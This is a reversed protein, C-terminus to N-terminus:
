TQIVIKLTKVLEDIQRLIFTIFEESLELNSDYTFNLQKNLDLANTEEKVYTKPVVKTNQKGASRKSDQVVQTIKKQMKNKIKILERQNYDSDMAAYEKPNLEYEFNEQDCFNTIQSNEETKIQHCSHVTLEEHNAFTMQCDLCCAIDEAIM